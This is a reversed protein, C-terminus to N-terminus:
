GTFSDNHSMNLASAFRGLRDNSPKAADRGGSPNQADLCARNAAPEDVSACGTFDGLRM